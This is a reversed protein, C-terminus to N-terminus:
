NIKNRHHEIKNWKVNKTLLAKIACYINTTVFIPNFVVVGILIHLKYRVKERYILICTLIVMVSYAFIIVECILWLWSLNKTLIAECLIGLILLGIGVLILIFPRLEIIERKISGYNRPKTRCNRLRKRLKPVYAKRVSFYGKLWRVRQLITQHFKTPQEDYFMTSEDYITNLGHLIAYASLEYDETLSHFPWGHWREVLKGDVYCGTGSFLVNANYRIRERNGFLNIISFTLGSVAAIINDNANKAYRYGIAIDYGAYYNQTLRELYDTPLINDADFIFYLDFHHKKLIQKLADDLAFGKRELNEPHKTSALDQRIIVNAGFKQCIKATPDTPREIIVFVNNMPVQLTQKALSKLLASIVASEDRAPILIAIKPKKARPTLKPQNQRVITVAYIVYFLGIIITAVSIAFLIM